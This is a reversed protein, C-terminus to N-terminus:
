WKDLGNPSYGLYLSFGFQDPDVQHFVGFTIDPQERHQFIDICDTGIKQDRDQATTKFSCKSEECAATVNSISEILRRVKSDYQEGKSQFLPLEGDDFDGFLVAADDEDDWTYQGPNQKVQELLKVQQDLYAFHEGNEILKFGQM